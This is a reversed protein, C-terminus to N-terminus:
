KRAPSGTRSRNKPEIPDIARVDLAVFHKLNRTAVVLDFVEATAALLMDEAGPYRGMALARDGVVGARRAVRVDVPIVREGFEEVMADIWPALRDAKPTGGSRRLKAVGHELEMLTVVSVWSLDAHVLIWDALAASAATRGPAAASLVSTDLLFGASM